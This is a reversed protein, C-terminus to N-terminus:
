KKKGPTYGHPQTLFILHRVVDGQKSVEQFSLPKIKLFIHIPEKHDIHRFEEEDLLKKKLDSIPPEALQTEEIAESCNPSESDVTKESDTLSSSSKKTEDFATIKTQDCMTESDKDVPNYMYTGDGDISEM